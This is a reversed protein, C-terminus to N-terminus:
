VGWPYTEPETAGHPELHLPHLAESEEVHVFADYRDPLVTPVYNGAERSPDYVVGVARHGRREALASDDGLDDLPLFVDGRGARHFADEYSGKRAEPLSMEEMQAGWRDGAVVSGRHTGFGVLAVNDAGHSERVLQGINVEGRDAMTTARADGVHTNHAWVIARGDPGHRDLLRDLTEAMHRDRVNWSSSGGRALTRYYEEANKAVVANQEAAFYEEGDPGESEYERAKRRLDTLIDVVDGECDEPVLRTSRAYERADGGYPEFCRYADRARDAAEPDVDELYDVVAEMSEFLGYVDLGYFGVRDDAPRGRNREALWDAFEAVEWNAWMWTPWRDFGDLVERAGDADLDGKVYRNVDYCDTWDGEVAVFDFGRDRVLRATLRARLRYFESTGHTAEGLLVCEADGLRDVIADLDDGGRLPRASERIEEVAATLSEDSGATTRRVFSM